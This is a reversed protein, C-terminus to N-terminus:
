VDHHPMMMQRIKAKLKFTWMGKKAMKRANRERANYHCRNANRVKMKGTTSVKIRKSYAKNTKNAM